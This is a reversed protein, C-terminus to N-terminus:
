TPVSGETIQRYLTTVAHDLTEAADRLLRAAALDQQEGRRELFNAVEHITNLRMQVQASAMLRDAERLKERSLTM